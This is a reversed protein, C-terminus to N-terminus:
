DEDNTIEFGDNYSNGFINEYGYYQIMDFLKNVYSGKLWESETIGQTNLFSEKDFWSENIMDTIAQYSIHAVDFQNQDIRYICRLESEDIDKVLLGYEFLSIENSADTGYFDNYDSLKRAM